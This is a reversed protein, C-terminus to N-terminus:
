ALRARFGYRPKMALKEWHNPKDMAMPTMEYTMTGNKRSIATAKDHGPTAAVSSFPVTRSRSAKAKRHSNTNTLVRPKRSYVRVSMGMINTINPRPAM